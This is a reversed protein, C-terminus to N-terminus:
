VQATMLRGSGVVRFGDARNGFYRENIEAARAAAAEVRMREQPDLSHLSASM